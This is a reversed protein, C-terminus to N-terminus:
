LSQSSTVLVVQPRGNDCTIKVSQSDALEFNDQAGQALWHYLDLINYRSDIRTINDHIHNPDAYYANHLASEIQMLDVAYPVESLIGEGSCLPKVFDPLDLGYLNLDNHQLPHHYIYQQLINQFGSDGILRQSLPYISRVASILASHNNIQYVRLGNNVTVPLNEKLHRALNDPSKNYLDYFGKQITMLSM